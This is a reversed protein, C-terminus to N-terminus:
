GGTLTRLVPPPVSVQVTVAEFECAFTVGALPARLAPWACVREVVCALPPRLVSRVTLAFPNLALTENTQM